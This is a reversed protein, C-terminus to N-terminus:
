APNKKLLKSVLDRAENSTDNATLTWVVEKHLINWITKEASDKVYFPTTRNLLYYLVIGVSWWDVSKGYPRGEIIEPARYDPTGCETTRLKGDELITALGFDILNIYGNECLM